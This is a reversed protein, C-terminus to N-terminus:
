SAEKGLMLFSVDMSLQESGGALSRSLRFKELRYFSQGGELTRMFSVLDGYKGTAKM